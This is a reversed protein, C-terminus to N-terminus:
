RRAHGRMAFTDHILLDADRAAEITGSCPRGDGGFVVRRGPRTPGVLDSPEIVRGDPLTVPQGKHLLGWMPGEPVGKERALDPNFRGLRTDEVIAYGFAIKGAHDVPYPVVSYDKRKVPTEPTIERYEVPFREKESGIAIARGSASRFRATWLTVAGAASYSLTRCLGIIGVHPGRCTRSSHRACAPELRMMQGADGRVISCLTDGRSNRSPSVNRKCHALRQASSASPLRFEAYGAQERFATITCGCASLRLRAPPNVVAKSFRRPTSKASVDKNLQLLDATVSHRNFQLRVEPPSPVMAAAFASALSFGLTWFRRTSM